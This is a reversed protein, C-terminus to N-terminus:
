VARLAINLIFKDEKQETKMLGSYKEVAFRINSLGFGHNEVDVKTTKVNVGDTCLLSTEFANEVRIFLHQKEMYMQINIFKEDCNECAEIANDIANGLIISIDIPEFPIQKPISIDTVIKIQKEEAITLKYNILAGIVPNDIRLIDNLKQMDNILENLYYKAESYENQDMLGYLCGIHHNFDHRQSKLKYTLEDLSNIYNIQREYEREVIDWEWEKQSYKIIEDIVKIVLITFTILFVSITLITMANEVVIMDDQYLKLVVVFFTLNSLLILIFEYIYVRRLNKHEIHRKHLFRIVMFLLSRSMLAGIVRYITNDGLVSPRVEFFLAIAGYTVVELASIIVLYLLLFLLIRQWNTEFIYYYLMLSILILVFFVPIQATGTAIDSFQFILGQAFVCGVILSKSQLRREFLASMFYFTLWVELQNIILDYLFWYM